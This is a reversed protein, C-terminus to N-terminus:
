PERSREEEDLAEAVNALDEGRDDSGDRANSGDDHQEAKVDGDKAHKCVRQKRHTPPAVHSM